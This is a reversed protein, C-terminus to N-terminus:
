TIMKAGNEEEEDDEEKEDASTIIKLPMKTRIEMGKDFLPKYIRFIWVKNSYTNFLHMVYDVNGVQTIKVVNIFDTEISSKTKKFKEWLKTM